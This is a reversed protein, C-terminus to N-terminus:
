RRAPQMAQTVRMMDAVLHPAPCGAGPAAASLKTMGLSASPDRGTKPLGLDKPLSPIVVSLGNWSGAPLSGWLYEAVAMLGRRAAM